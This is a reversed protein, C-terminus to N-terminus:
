KRKPRPTKSRSKLWERVLAQSLWRHLTPVAKPENADWAPRMFPHPAVARASTGYVVGGGSMVKKTKPRVAVRGFEVLHAYRAPNVKKGGSLRAWKNVYFLVKGSKLKRQRRVTVLDPPKATWVGGRPKVVGLVRKGNKSIVVKRGLSKKLLGSGTPVNDKADKLVDKTVEGIGKKVAARGARKDLSVLREILTKLQGTDVRATIPVKFRSKAM